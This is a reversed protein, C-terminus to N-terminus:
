SFYAKQKKLYEAQKKIAKPYAVTFYSRFDEYQLFAQYLFLQKKGNPVPSTGFTFGM